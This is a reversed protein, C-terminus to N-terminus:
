ATTWAVATHRLSHLMARSPHLSGTIGLSRPKSCWAAPAPPPDTGRIKTEGAVFRRNTGSDRVPISVDRGSFRRPVPAFISIGIGHYPPPIDNPDTERWIM